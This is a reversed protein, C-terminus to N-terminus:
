IILEGDKINRNSYLGIFIQNDQRKYKLIILDIHSLSDNSGMVISYVLSTLGNGIGLNSIM